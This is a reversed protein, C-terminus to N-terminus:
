WGAFVGVELGAIVVYYSVAGHTVRIRGGSWPLRGGHLSQPATAFPHVGTNAPTRVPTVPVTVRPATVAVGPTADAAPRGATASDPGYPPGQSSTKAIGGGGTGRPV